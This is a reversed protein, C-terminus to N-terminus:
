NDGVGKWMIDDPDVGSGCVHGSRDHYVTTDSSVNNHRTM